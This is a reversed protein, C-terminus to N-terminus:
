ELFFLFSFVTKKADNKALILATTIQSTSIRVESFGSITGTWMWLRASLMSSYHYFGVSGRGGDM